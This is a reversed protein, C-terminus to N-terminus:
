DQLTSSNTKKEGEETEANVDPEWEVLDKVHEGLSRHGTPLLIM